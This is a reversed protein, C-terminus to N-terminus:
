FVSNRRDTAQCRSNKYNYENKIQGALVSTASQSKKKSQECKKLLLNVFEDDIKTVVVFPGWYPFWYKIPEVKNLKM